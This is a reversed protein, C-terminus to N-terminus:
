NRDTGALHIDNLKYFQCFLNFDVTFYDIIVSAGSTRGDCLTNTM